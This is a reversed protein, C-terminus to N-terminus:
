LISCYGSLSPPSDEHSFKKSLILPLAHASWILLTQIKGPQKAENRVSLHLISFPPKYQLSYFQTRNHCTMKQTTHHPHTRTIQHPCWCMHVIDLFMVSVLVLFILVGKKSAPPGFIFCDTQHQVLFNVPM